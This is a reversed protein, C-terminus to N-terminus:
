PKEERYNITVTPKGSHTVDFSVTALAGDEYTEWRDPREDGNTDEEARTLRGGKYFERRNVRGDRKTSIEIRDPLGDPGAFLWADVVGDNSRSIGVKELKQDASYYEWRDVVGNEDRDVDIRVFKSGDMHSFINPKGDTGSNITLQSLKGSTRDYEAEVKPSASGSAGCAVHFLLCAHATTLLLVRDILGM